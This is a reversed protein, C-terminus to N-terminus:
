KNIQEIDREKRQMEKKRGDERSSYNVVTTGEVYKKKKDGLAQITIM